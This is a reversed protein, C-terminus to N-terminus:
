VTICTGSVVTIEKERIKKGDEYFVLCTVGTEPIEPLLIRYNGQEDAQGDFVPYISTDTKKLVSSFPRDMMCIGPKENLSKIRVFEAKRKGKLSSIAAAVRGEMDMNGVYYVSVSCGDQEPEYDRLLHIAYESTLCVLRVVSDVDARGTVAADNKRMNYFKGPSLWVKQVELPANGVTHKVSVTKYVPSEIIIELESEQCGTLVYYGGEKATMVGKEPLNFRLSGSKVNKGTFTDYFSFVAQVKIIYRRNIM